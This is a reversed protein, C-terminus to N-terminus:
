CEEGAVKWAEHPRTYGSFAESLSIFMPIHDLRTNNNGSDSSHILQPAEQLFPGLIVFLSFYLWNIVDVPLWSTNLKVLM